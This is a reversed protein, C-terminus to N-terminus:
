RGSTEQGQARSAQQIDGIASRFVKRMLAEPDIFERRLLETDAFAASGSHIQVSRWLNLTDIEIATQVLEKVIGVAAATPITNENLVALACRLCRNGVEEWLSSGTEIIENM